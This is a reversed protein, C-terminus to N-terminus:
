PATEYAKEILYLSKDVIEAAETQKEIIRTTAVVSDVHLLGNRHTSFHEYIMESATCTNACNGIQPKVTAAVTKTGQDFQDGINLKSGLVYGKRAFLDKIAGEMGRLAPFVLMSYDPLDVSLKHVMLAPALITKLAEDMKSWATPMLQELEAMLQGSEAVTVPVTALQSQVLEERDASTYNLTNVVASYAMRTRGQMLFRGTDWRHIYVQDNPSASVKFRKGHQLPEATLIFADAALSEELFKWDEESIYRLGLPKTSVKETACQEAVHKAVSESLGKNKGLKYNLTFTGDNRYFVQLLAPAQDAVDIGYTKFGKGEIAATANTNGAFSRIAAEIKAEDLVLAAYEDAM